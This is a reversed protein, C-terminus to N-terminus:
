KKEKHTTKKNCRPCYKQIQMREPNKRKNGFDKVRVVVKHGNVAGMTHEKSIFIDKAIKLNDPVVFGYNKSKEFVGVVLENAREVVKVIMAESRRSGQADSLKKIEVKDGHLADM